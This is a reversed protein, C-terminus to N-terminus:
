AYLFGGLSTCESSQLSLTNQERIDDYGSPDSLMLPPIAQHRLRIQRKPYPTQHIM